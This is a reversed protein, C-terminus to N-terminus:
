CRSSLYVYLSFYFSLFQILVSLHSSGSIAAFNAISFGRLVPSIAIDVQIEAEDKPAKEEIKEYAEEEM